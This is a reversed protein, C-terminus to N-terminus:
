NGDKNEAILKLWELPHLPGQGKFYWYRRGNLFEIAPGDTRHLKGNQWWEKYGSSGEIAPGDLRHFLRKENYYYKTGWRNTEVRIEEKTEMEYNVVPEKSIPISFKKTNKM